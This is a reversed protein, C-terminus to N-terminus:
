VSSGAELNLQLSLLGGQESSKIFFIDGAGTGGGNNICPHM